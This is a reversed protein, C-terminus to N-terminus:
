APDPDPGELPVLEITHIMKVDGSHETEIKDSQGLYNKGLFIAMAANKQALQFQTRRLSIRGNGKGKEWAERVGPQDLFSEFTQAAVDFFAAGERVTAQIQGLGAVQKLTAENAILKRPRGVKRPGIAM